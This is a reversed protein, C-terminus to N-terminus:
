FVDSGVLESIKDNCLAVRADCLIRIQDDTMAFHFGFKRQLIEEVKDLTEMDTSLGSRNANCEGLIHDKSLALIIDMRRHGFGEVLIKRAVQEDHLFPAFQRAMFREHQVGLYMERLQRWQRVLRDHTAMASRVSRDIDPLSMTKDEAFCQMVEIMVAFNRFSYTGLRTLRTIVAAAMKAFAILHLDRKDNKDASM